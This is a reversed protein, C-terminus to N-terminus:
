NASMAPLISSKLAAVGLGIAEDAIEQISKDAELALRSVEKHTEPKVHLTRTKAKAEKTETSLTGERTKAM